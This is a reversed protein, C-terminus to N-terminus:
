LTQFNDLKKLFWAASRPGTNTSVQKFLSGTNWAVRIKRTLLKGMKTTGQLPSELRKRKEFIKENEQWKMPSRAGLFFSSRSLENRSRDPKNTIPNNRSKASKKGFGTANGSISWNKESKWRLKENKKKPRELFREKLFFQFNQFLRNKSRPKKKSHWTNDDRKNERERKEKKREDRWSVFGSEWRQCADFFVM